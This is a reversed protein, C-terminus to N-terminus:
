LRGETSSNAFEASRGRVVMGIDVIKILPKTPSLHKDTVRGAEATQSLHSFMRKWASMDNARRTHFAVAGRM